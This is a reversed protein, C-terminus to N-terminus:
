STKPEDDVMIDEASVKMAKDSESFTVIFDRTTRPRLTVQLDYDPQRITVGMNSNETTPLIWRGGLPQADFRLIICSAFALMETAAFHRGPCLTAGGGFGRFAVPDYQRGKKGPVQLFRRAQFEDANEGWAPANHQAAAPILVIAGKKLLYNGVTTGELVMRTSVGIGYFRLVEQLTSLLVPCYSKVCSMDVICTDDNEQVASSLEQRCRELLEPDSFLHLVLWFTAPMTNSILAISTTVELRAIDADSIDRDHFLRYREKIFISADPHNYMDEVYYKEYAKVLFERAHTADRATLTPLVDMMLPVFGM